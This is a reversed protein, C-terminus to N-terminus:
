PWIPRLRDLLASTAEAVSGEGGSRAWEMMMADIAGLYAGAIVARTARDLRAGVVDARLLEDIRELWAETALSSSGLSPSSALAAYATLVNTADADIHEAVAMACSEVVARTSRGAPDAAAADWTDLWRRPLELVIDEKTPFRRYLTRRSIGAAAAIEEMTVAGFGREAFRELAAAVVADKTERHRRLRLDGM